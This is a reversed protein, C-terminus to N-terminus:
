EPSCMADRPGWLSTAMNYHSFANMGVEFVGYHVVIEVSSLIGFDIRLSMVADKFTVGSLIFIFLDCVKLMYYLLIYNVMGYPLFIIMNVVFQVLSLVFLILVLLSFDLSQVEMGSTLM